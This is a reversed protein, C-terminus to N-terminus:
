LPVAPVRVVATVNDVAQLKVHCLHYVEQRFGDGIGKGRQSKEYSGEAIQCGHVPPQSNDDDDHNGDKDQHTLNIHM